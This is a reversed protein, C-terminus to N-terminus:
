VIIGVVADPKFVHLERGDDDLELRVKKHRHVIMADGFKLLRADFGHGNQRFFGFHRGLVDLSWQMLRGFTLRGLWPSETYYTTGTGVAVQVYAAPGVGVVYATSQLQREVGALVIGSDTVDEQEVFEVVINDGVVEFSVQELDRSMPKTQQDDM